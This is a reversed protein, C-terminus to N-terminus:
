PAGLAAKRERRLRLLGGALLLLGLAASRAVGGHGNGLELEVSGASLATVCAFAAGMVGMTLAEARGAAAYACWAAALMPGIVTVAPDFAADMVCGALFLAMLSWYGSLRRGARRGGSGVLGAVFCFAAISLLVTRVDDVAGLTAARLDGGGAALFYADHQRYVVVRWGSQAETPRVWASVTMAASLDLSSSGPVRVVQHDGGFRVAGGFRGHATWSAGLVEGTNGRGSSDIAASGSDADFAYAAVLGPSDPGGHGAIPISMATRVAGPSLARDYIRVDDIVGRFYEGYPRDGGIWLPNATRAIAGSLSTHSREVGDVYLRLTGGDYTVALHTWHGVPNADSGGVHETRGGFTGGGAPVLSGASPDAVTGVSLLMVWLLVAAAAAVRPGRRWPRPGAFKGVALGAASIALAVLPLAPLDGADIGHSESLTVMVPGHWPEWLFIGAAAAVLVAIVLGTGALSLAGSRGRM